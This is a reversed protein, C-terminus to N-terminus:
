VYEHYTSISTTQDIVGERFMRHGCMPGRVVGPGWSGWWRFGASFLGKSFREDVRSYPLIILFLSVKTESSIRIVLHITELSKFKSPLPLHCFKNGFHIIPTLCQLLTGSQWACITESSIDVFTKIILYESEGCALSTGLPTSRPSSGPCRLCSSM